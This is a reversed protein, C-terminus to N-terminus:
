LKLKEKHIRIEDDTFRMKLLKAPNGGVISYPAVNKIVVAGAGVISGQGITVGKLIMSNSGIWVDDEITVIGDQGPTNKHVTNMFVGVKNYIHNGGHINVGPGFMVNNGIIIKGHTTMFLCNRGIFVNDGICINKETFYCDDSIYVNHGCSEFLSKQYQRIFYYFVRRFFLLVRGIFSNM